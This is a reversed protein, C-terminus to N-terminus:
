LAEYVQMQHPIINELDFFIKKINETWGIEGLIYISISGSYVAFTDQFGLCQSLTSFTEVCKYIDLFSEFPCNALVKKSPPLLIDQQIQSTIEPM